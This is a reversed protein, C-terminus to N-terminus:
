RVGIEAHEPAAVEGTESLDGGGLSQHQLRDGLPQHLGDVGARRALMRRPSQLRDLRGALQPDREGASDEYADAFRFLFPDFRQLREGINV